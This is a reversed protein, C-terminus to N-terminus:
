KDPLSFSFISGQDPESNVWIKGKHREVLERSIMLGLGSGRENHTGPKSVFNGPLFLREQSSKNMGIGNDAISIWVETEKKVATIEVLGNKHSFKIANSLLNRLISKLMNADAYVRIEPSVRNLLRINKQQAMDNLFALVTEITENLNLLLPSFHLKNQQMKAWELLNELLQLTQTSSSHIMTAYEEIENVRLLSADQKLLESLGIIGNFPSRLDHAIISFLKDKTTITEKLEAAQEQLEKNAKELEKQQEVILNSKGIGSYNNRWLLFSLIFSLITIAAANMRNSLLVDPDSQTYPLFYFLLLFSLLYITASIEPRIFLVLAVVISIIIFPSISNTILQDYVTIMIGAVLFVLTSLVLLLWTLWDGPKHYKKRFWSLFFLFLSTIILIIHSSIIGKRWMLRTADATDDEISFIFIFIINILIVIFPFYLLRGTNEELIKHHILKRDFGTKM